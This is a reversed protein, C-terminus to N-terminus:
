EFFIEKQSTEEENFEWYLLQTDRAKWSHIIHIQIDLKLGNSKTVLASNTVARDLSM